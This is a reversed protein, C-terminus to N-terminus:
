KQAEEGEVLKNNYLIKMPYPLHLSKELWLDILDKRFRLCRELKLYPIKKRFVWDTITAPKVNLYESLENINLLNEM